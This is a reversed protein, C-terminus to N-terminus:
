VLSCSVFYSTAVRRFLNGDKGRWRLIMDGCLTAPKLWEVLMHSVCHLIGLEPSFVHTCLLALSWHLTLSFWASPHPLLSTLITQFKLLPYFPQNLTLSPRRHSFSGWSSVRSYLSSNFEHFYCFLPFRLSPFLHHWLLASLYFSSEAHRNRQGEKINTEAAECMLTGGVGALLRCM